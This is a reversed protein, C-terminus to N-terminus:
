CSREVEDAERKGIGIEWLTGAIIRVMNYLFGNGNIVLHLQEGNEEIRIEHITRIRGEVETKASCFSTFDHTGIFYSSSHANEFYGGSLELM